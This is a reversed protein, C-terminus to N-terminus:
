DRKLTPWFRYVLIGIGTITLITRDAGLAERNKLDKGPVKDVNLKASFFVEHTRWEAGQM